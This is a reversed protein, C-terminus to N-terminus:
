QRISKSRTLGAPRALGLHRQQLGHFQVNLEEVGAAAAHRPRKAESRIVILDRDTTTLMRQQGGQALGTSGGRLWSWNM